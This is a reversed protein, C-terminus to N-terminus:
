NVTISSRDPKDMLDSPLRVRNAHSFCKVRGIICTGPNKKSGPTIFTYPVMDLLLPLFPKQPLWYRDSWCRGFRILTQLSPGCTLGSLFSISILLPLYILLKLLLLPSPFGPFIIFCGYHFYCFFFVSLIIAPLFFFFHAKINLNWFYDSSSEPCM